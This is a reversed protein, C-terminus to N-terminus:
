MRLAKATTKPGWHDTFPNRATGPFTIIAQSANAPWPPLRGRLNWRVEAMSLPGEAVNQKFSRYKFNVVGGGGVRRM